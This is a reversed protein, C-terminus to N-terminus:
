TRKPLIIEFITEQDSSVLVEGQQLEIYAKVLSLGIGTQGDDGKYFREFIKEYDKPEIKPGDNSVTINITDSVEVRVEIYHTAYRIANSILNNIASYMLFEDYKFIIPQELNFRLELGKSEIFAVNSDFVEYLTERLDSKVLNVGLLNSDLKSLSLISEVLKSMRESQSSIVKAAEDVQIIGEALGEANGQIAMLPTKLEHSANAFFSKTKEDSEYMAKSVRMSLYIIFGCIAVLLLGLMSTTTNLVSLMPYINTYYISTQEDNIVVYMFSSAGDNYLYLVDAESNNNLYDNYILDENYTLTDQDLNKVELYFVDFYDERSYYYADDDMEEYLTFHISEEAKTIISQKTYFHFFALVFAFVVVTVVSVTVGLNRKSM